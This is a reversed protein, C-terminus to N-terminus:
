PIDTETTPDVSPTEEEPAPTVVPDTTEEPVPTVVPDTTEEPVPMTVPDTTEEPVPPTVPFVPSESVPTLIRGITFAASVRSGDNGEATLTYTWTENACPYVLAFDTATATLDAHLPVDIADIETPGAALAIKVANAVDWGVLVSGEDTESPCEVTSTTAAFQTITSPLPLVTSTPTPSLPPTPPDSEEPVPASAILAFTTGAGAALLVASLSIVGVLIKRRRRERIKKRNREHRAADRPGGSPDVTGPSTDGDAAATALPVTADLAVPDASNADSAPGQPTPAKDQGLPTAAPAAAGSAPSRAPQRKSPTAAGVAGDPQKTWKVYDNIVDDTPGDARLEGKHIWLVRDCTDKLAGISHSVIMVLGASDRLERIRQDSKVKFRRDGVALAEDILMISHANASAIAFRLRAGMGSSYTRMPHQIFENLEAFDAIEDVRESAEAASFGMALLGLKINSEGSLDPLLAANVGLLVPRDRALIRGEATPILGAMARFLTSKGSGNHGVVGITEGESATFTVGRLAHVTQLERGGRASRMSLVLDRASPKKGTAYVRYNVHANDVIVM